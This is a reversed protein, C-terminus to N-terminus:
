IVHEQTPTHFASIFHPPIFIDDQKSKIKDYTHVKIIDIPKSIAQLLYEAEEVNIHRTELLELVRLSLSSM